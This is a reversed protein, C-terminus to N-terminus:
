DVVSVYDCDVVGVLGFFLRSFLTDHAFFWNPLGEVLTEASEFAGSCVIDMRMRQGYGQVWAEAM